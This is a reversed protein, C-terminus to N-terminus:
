HTMQMFLARPARSNRGDPEQGLSVGV